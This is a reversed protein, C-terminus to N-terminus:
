SVGHLHLRAYALIGHIDPENIPLIRLIIMEGDGLFNSNRCGAIIGV